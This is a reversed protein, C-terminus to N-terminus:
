ELIKELYDEFAPTLTEIYNYQTYDKPDIWIYKDHDNSLTVKDSDAICEFFTGVIHREVM